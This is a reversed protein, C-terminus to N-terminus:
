TQRMCSEFCRQAFGQDSVGCAIRVAVRCCNAKVLSDPIGACAALAPDGSVAIAASAVVIITVLIAFMLRFKKMAEEKM